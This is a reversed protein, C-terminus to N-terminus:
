SFNGVSSRSDHTNAHKHTTQGEMWNVKPTEDGKNFITLSNGAASETAM